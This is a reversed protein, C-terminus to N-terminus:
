FYVFLRGDRLLDIGDLCVFSWRNPSQSAWSVYYYLLHTIYTHAIRVDKYLKSNAVALKANAPPLMTSMATGSLHSKRKNELVIYLQYMLRTAVGERAQMLDRAMNTDFAIGLLRLTPEVRTLNNLRADM